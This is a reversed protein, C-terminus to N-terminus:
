CSAPRFAAPRRIRRTPTAAKQNAIYSRRSAPLPDSPLPLDPAPLTRWPVSPIRKKEFPCSNEPTSKECIASYMESNASRIPPTVSLRAPLHLLMPSHVPPLSVRCAPTLEIRARSGLPSEPLSQFVPAERERLAAAQPHPPFATDRFQPPALSEPPFRSTVAPARSVCAGRHIAPCLPSPRIAHLKHRSFNSANTSPSSEASACRSNSACKCVHADQAASM